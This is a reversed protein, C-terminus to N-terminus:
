LAEAKNLKISQNPNTGASLRVPVICSSTQWLSIQSNSSDKGLKSYLLLTARSWSLESLQKITKM